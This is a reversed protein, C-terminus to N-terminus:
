RTRKTNEKWGDIQRYIEKIRAVLAAANTRTGTACRNVCEKETYWGCPCLETRPREDLSDCYDQQDPSLSM